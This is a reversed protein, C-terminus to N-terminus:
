IEKGCVIVKQINIDEDFIVIDADYGIEIMGKNELKMVRAPNICMMKIADYVPLGIDKVCFRVLRDCTAISGAFAEEDMLYAVGDKIKCPLDGLNAITKDSGSCRMSDTVLCISDPGKIKYVIKFLEKPVHCGDAIIEIDMDDLLYGCEIIGLRRFGKKRTITSMCSYFHTLLKCGKNYATMVDEYAADSHGISPIVGYQSIADM